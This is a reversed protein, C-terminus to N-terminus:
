NMTYTKKINSQLVIKGYQISRFCHVGLDSQEKLEEILLKILAKM